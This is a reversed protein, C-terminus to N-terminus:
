GQEDRELFGPDREVRREFKSWWDQFSKLPIVENGGPGNGSFSALFHYANQIIRQALVKTPVPSAAPTRRVLEMGTTQPAAAQAKMQALNAAVQSAPEVSIGLLVNAAADNSVPAPAGEDTMADDDITGGGDIGVVKNHVKFIASQKENAIAGLLKFENAGPLQIYVAAATDQPLTTGPLLFVVIHSFPPTSPIAFAFQTQSITQADTLVPRGSVIVGFM